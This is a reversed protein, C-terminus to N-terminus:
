KSRGSTGRAGRTREYISEAPVRGREGAIAKSEVMTGITVVKPFLKPEDDRVV